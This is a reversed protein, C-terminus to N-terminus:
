KNVKLNLYNYNEFYLLYQLLIQQMHPLPRFGGRYFRYVEIFIRDCYSLYHIKKRLIQKKNAYGISWDAAATATESRSVASFLLLIM